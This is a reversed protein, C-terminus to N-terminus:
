RQPLASTEQVLGVFYIFILALGKPPHHVNRNNAAVAM